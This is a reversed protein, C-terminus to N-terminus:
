SSYSAHDSIRSEQDLDLYPRVPRPVLGYQIGYTLAEQFTALHVAISPAFNAYAAHFEALLGEIAFMVRPNSRDLLSYHNIARRLIRMQHMFTTLVIRQELFLIDLDPRGQTSYLIDELLLTRRRQALNNVIIGVNPFLEESGHEHIYKRLEKIDTDLSELYRSSRPYDGYLQYVPDQTSDEYFPIEVFIPLETFPDMFPDRIQASSSTGPVDVM